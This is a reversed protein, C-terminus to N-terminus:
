TNSLFQSITAAMVMCLKQQYTSDSLMTEEKPNSLFGCEVLVGTCKMHEMLYIGEGKKIQRRSGKNVTRIMAEQLAQALKESDESGAYFIQAGSYRKDPFHNQHISIFLSNERSNAIRVREKLDSIKKKAITEGETYVSIDETRIMLTEYGLLNLLDNLKRAIELNYTSEPKGTCSVAGGDIGGHGADIIVCHRDAGEMAESMVTATQDTMYVVMLFVAGFLAYVIMWKIRKRLM